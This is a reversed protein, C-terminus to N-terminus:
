LPINGHKKPPRSARKNRLMRLSRTVALRTQSPEIVADIYGRETALYPNLLTDEDDEEAGMAFLERGDKIGAAVSELVLVVDELSKKERGLEQARKPDDWIKPDELELNLLTLRERKHDYDFIGGYSTPASRWTTSRTPSVTKGNQTWSQKLRASFPRIIGTPRAASFRSSPRGPIM